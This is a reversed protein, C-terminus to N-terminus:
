DFDLLTIMSNGGGVAIKMDEPQVAVCKVLGNGVKLGKEKVMKTLNFIGVKSESGAIIYRKGYDIPCLDNLEGIEFKQCGVEKFSITDVVRLTGETTTVLISFGDTSFTLSDCCDATIRLRKIVKLSDLSFLAIASKTLVCGKNTQPHLSISSIETEFINESKQISLDEGNILCVKGDLTAVFLEKKNENLENSVVCFPMYLNTLIQEIEETETNIMYISGDLSISIIKNGITTVSSIAMKQVQFIESQSLHSLGGEKGLDRKWFIIEGNITGAVLGLNSWYLATVISDNASMNKLVRLSM